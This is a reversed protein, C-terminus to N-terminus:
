LCRVSHNLHRELFKIFVVFSNRAETAFCEHRSQSFQKSSPGPVTAEFARVQADEVGIQDNTELGYCSTENDLKVFHRALQSKFGAAFM